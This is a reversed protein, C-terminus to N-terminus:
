RTPENPRKRPTAPRSPSQPRKTNDRLRVDPLPEGRQISTTM